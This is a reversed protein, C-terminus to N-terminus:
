AGDMDLIVREYREVVHRLDLSEARAIARAAFRQRLEANGLVEKLGESLADVDEPPVLLGGGGHELYQAVGPSCNTAVVPRGLAIAEGIVNPSAESRSALVVVDARAMFKWPNAQAGLLVVRDGVGLEAILQELTARQDGEGIIVLKGAMARPLRAFARIMLDFGKLHVLRGVAVLLPRAGLVRADDVREASLRRIRDLDVPNPMVTIRQAPVGFHRVLDEKVGESVSVIREALPFGHRVFARMFWRERRSFHRALHDSLTEHVNIVLRMRPAFLIRTLLAITHSRNLFTSVVAANSARAIRALRFAKRLLEPVELATQGMPRGKRRHSAALRARALEPPGLPVPEAQDLAYIDLGSDLEPLLDAATEILVVSPRLVRSNNVFNVLSREAGGM